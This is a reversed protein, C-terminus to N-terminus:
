RALMILDEAGQGASSLGSSGLPEGGCLRRVRDGLGLIGLAVVVVVCVFWQFTVM